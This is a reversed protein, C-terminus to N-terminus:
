SSKEFKKKLRNYLVRDRQDLLQEFNKRAKERVAKEELTEERFYTLCIHAGCSDEESELDISVEEVNSAGMEEAKKELWSIFDPLLKPIEYGSYEKYMRIKM